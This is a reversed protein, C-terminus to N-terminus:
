VLYGMQRLCEGLEGPKQTGFVIKKGSKLQVRLGTQGSVNNVIGFSTWRWGYGVFGYNVIEAKEIQSWPFSKYKVQFPRWRFFVAEDTILTELKLLYFFVLMLLIFFTVLLLAVNSAPKDGFPRAFIIQRVDAYFLLALIAILILYVIYMWGQRFQQEENFKVDAM